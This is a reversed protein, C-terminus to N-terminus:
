IDGKGNEGREMAKEGNLLRLIEPIGRWIEEMGGELVGGNERWNEEM